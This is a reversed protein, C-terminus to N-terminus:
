RFLPFPLRAASGDVADVHRPLRLDASMYETHCWSVKERPNVAHAGLGEAIFFEEKEPACGWDFADIFPLQLENLIADCRNEIVASFRLSGDAERDMHVVLSIEFMEGNEATLRDYTVVAGGDNETVSVPTQMHSYVSLERIEGTDLFARWFDGGDRGVTAFGDSLLRIGYQFDFHLKTQTGM